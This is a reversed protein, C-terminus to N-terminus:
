SALPLFLSNIFLIYYELMDHFYIVYKLVKSVLSQQPLTSIPVKDNVVVQQLYIKLFQSAGAESNRHVRSSTSGRYQLCRLLYEGVHYALLRCTREYLEVRQYAHNLIVLSTILHRSPYCLLTYCGQAHMITYLSATEIVITM